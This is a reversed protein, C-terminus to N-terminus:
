ANEPKRKLRKIAIVTYILIIEPVAIAVALLSGLSSAQTSSPLAFRITIQHTSFHAPYWVYFNNADQTYEQSSAQKGDILIVPTTGYLIATKPITM